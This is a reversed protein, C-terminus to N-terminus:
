QISEVVKEEEAASDSPRSAAENEHLYEGFQDLLGEKALLEVVMQPVRSKIQASFDKTIGNLGEELDSKVRNKRSQIQNGLSAKKKSLEEYKAKDNGRVKKMEKNIKEIQALIERNVIM